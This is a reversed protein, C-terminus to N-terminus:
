HGAAVLGSAALLLVALALVIIASYVRDGKRLFAPLVALYCVITLGALMAIGLFNLIDGHGVLGLWGWGRPLGTAALYHEASLGWYRPLAAIPVLPSVLGGLYLVFGLVLALMSLGTGARLVAAFVIQERTPEPLTLPSRPTLEV